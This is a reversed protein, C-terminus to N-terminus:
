PEGCVEFLNEMKSIPRIKLIPQGFEFEIMNENPPIILGNIGIPSLYTIMTM